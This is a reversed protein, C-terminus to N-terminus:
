LGSGMEVGPVLGRVFGVRALPLASRPPQRELVPTPPYKTDLDAFFRDWRDQMEPAWERMKQGFGEAHQNELVVFDCAAKLSDSRRPSSHRWPLHILIPITLRAM